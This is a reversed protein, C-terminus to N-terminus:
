MDSLIKPFFLSFFKIKLGCNSREKPNEVGLIHPRIRFKKCSWINKTEVLFLEFKM